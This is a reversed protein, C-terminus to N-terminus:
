LKVMKEIRRGKSGALQVIYNGQPLSSIDLIANAHARLKGSLTAFSGSISVLQYLVPENEENAITLTNRAMTPYVKVGAYVSQVKEVGLPKPEFRYVTGSDPFSTLAGIGSIDDSSDLYPGAADGSLYYMNDFNGTMADLKQFYMFPVGPIGNFYESIHSLQSKGFVFELAGQEYYWIQMNLYDDTTGYTEYEQAFGANNIEIKFIRNPAQGSTIYRIPSASKTPQMSTDARDFIDANMFLFGSLVFSSSNFDVTDAALIQMNTIGCYETTDGNFAYKFGLPVKVNIDDWTNTDNVSLGGNLPIYAEQRVSFDYQFQASTTSACIISVFLLLLNKM